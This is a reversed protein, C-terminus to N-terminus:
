KTEMPHCGGCGFGEHTAPDFPKLGLAKAMEPAVKEAMFKAVDPKTTFEELKGGVLHLKPLYSKPDKFDPGHCTRCGFDAYRKADAAQFIPKMAPVVRQKMMAVMQEKSLSDSWVTPAEVVSASTSASPETTDSPTTSAVPPTAPTTQGGGCAVAVAFPVAVVALVLLSNRM